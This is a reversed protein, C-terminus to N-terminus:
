TQKFGRYIWRVAFGIALAALCPLLWIALLRVALHRWASVRLVHVYAKGIAAAQAKTTGGPVEFRHGNPMELVLPASEWWPASASAPASAESAILAVEDAPLRQLQESEFPVGAVDLLSDFLVYTVSGIAVGYVVTLALWLRWWGGIRRAM